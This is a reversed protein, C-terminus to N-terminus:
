SLSQVDADEGKLIKIEGKLNLIEEELHNIKEKKIKVKEKSIKAAEKAEKLEEKAEKMEKKAEKLEEKLISFEEFSVSGSPIGQDGKEVVKSVSGSPVTQDGKKIVKKLEKVIENVSKIWAEPSDETNLFLSTRMKLLASVISREVNVGIEASVYTILDWM